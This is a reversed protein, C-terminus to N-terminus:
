ANGIIKNLKKILRVTEQKDAGIPLKLKITKRNALVLALFYQQSLNLKAKYSKFKTVQSFYYRAVKRGYIKKNIVEIYKPTPCVDVTTLPAFLFSSSFIDIFSVLAIFIVMLWVGWEYAFQSGNQALKILAFLLIAPGTFLFIGGIWKTTPVHRFHMGESDEKLSM